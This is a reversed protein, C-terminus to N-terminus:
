KSFQERFNNNFKANLRKGYKDKFEKILSNANGKGKLARAATTGLVKIGMGGLQGIYKNVPTKRIGLGGIPAGTGNGGPGQAATQSRTARRLSMTSDFLTKNRQSFNRQPAKVKLRNKITTLQTQNLTGKKLGKGNLFNALPKPLIPGNTNGGLNVFEDVAKEIDNKPPPTSAPPPAMPAPPATSPTQPTYKLGFREKFKKRDLNTINKAKTTKIISLIENSQNNSLTLGPFSTKLKRAL